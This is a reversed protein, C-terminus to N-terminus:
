FCAQTNDQSAYGALQAEVSSHVGASISFRFAESKDHRQRCALLALVHIYLM